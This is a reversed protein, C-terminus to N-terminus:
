GTYSIKFIIGTAWDAVFLSGDPGVTVDIPSAFGTAFNTPATGGPGVHVVKQAFPFATWLTVFLSNYYGPFQDALYATIGTPSSSSPFTVNPPLVEVGPPPSFCVDCDYWPYGHEGGPVVRHLEEPPDFDPTNDTAWMQGNGDWTHDYPNRLGRAYVTHEGTDPNFRLIAAELPHREDQRGSGDLIEGHDARAGVGVYGFGDPGFTIGQASHFATYCCPLNGFLQGRGVISVQAEGGVGATNPRDSVYLDSTGPRFAIGTPMSFGTAHTSVNGSSNMKFINGQQQAIYLLGDPGFTISTPNGEIRGYYSVDYGAPVLIRNEWGSKNDNGPYDNNNVNPVSGPSAPPQPNTPAANTASSETTTTTAPATETEPTTDTQPAAAAATEATSTATSTPISTATAPEPAPTNTSAVATNAATATDRAQVQAATAAATASPTSASETSNCAALGLLLGVFLLTRINIKM